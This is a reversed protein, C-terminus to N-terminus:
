ILGIRTAEAKFGQSSAVVRGLTYNDVKLVIEQEGNGGATGGEYMAQIIGEYSGQKVAQYMIDSMQTDNVVATAGANRGVWERRGNENTAIFNATTFGGEAMYWAQTFGGAVNSAGKSILDKNFTLVGAIIQLLGSIVKLAGAIPPLIIKVLLNFIPMLTVILDAVSSIVDVLVPLLATIIDTLPPLLEVIVNKIPELVNQIAALLPKIIPKIANLIEGLSKMLEKIIAIVEEFIGSLESENGDISVEEFMEAPSTTTGGSLVEFTDFSFKQAKELSAAYDDVNKKAKTYVNKGSMKAVALNFADIIEVITDALTTLIPELAQLVSAFAIGMTNKIQNLSGNLKSMTDNVSDSYQALNNLGENVGSTLWKIGTRIARYISINRIRGMLKQWVNGSKKAAQQQKELQKTLSAIQKKAEELGATDGHSFADKFNNEAKELERNLQYIKEQIPDLSRKYQELVATAMSQREPLKSLRDSLIEPTAQRLQTEGGKLVAGQGAVEAIRAQNKKATRSARSKESKEIKKQVEQLKELNKTLNAIERNTNQYAKTNTFGGEERESQKQKLKEIRKTLKDIHSDLDDVNKIMGVFVTRNGKDLDALLKLLKKDSKSTDIEVSYRLTNFDM